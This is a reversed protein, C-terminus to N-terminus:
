APAGVTRVDTVTLADSVSKNLKDTFITVSESVTLTDVAGSLFLQDLEGFNESVTLSDAVGGGSGISMTNSPATVNDPYPAYFMTQAGMIDFYSVGLVDNNTNEIFPSLVDQPVGTLASIKTLKVNDAYFSFGSADWHIMFQVPSNSYGSMWTLNTAQTNGFRDQTAARFTAGTTEFYAFSGLANNKWGWRHQLDGSKPAAPSYIKMSLTGKEFDAQMISSAQNLQLIGGSVAPAGSISRWWDVTDYPRRSFDYTLNIRPNPM